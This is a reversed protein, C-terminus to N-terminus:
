RDIEGLVIDISGICAVVDGRGLGLSRLANATRAIGGLLETYSLKRPPGEPDAGLFTIATKDGCRKQTQEIAQMVNTADM